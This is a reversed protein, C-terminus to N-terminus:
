MQHKWGHASVAADLKALVLPVMNLNKARSRSLLLWLLLQQWCGGCMLSASDLALLESSVGDQSIPHQVV